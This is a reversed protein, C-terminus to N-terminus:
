SAAWARGDSNIDIFNTSKGNSLSTDSGVPLPLAYIWDGPNYAPTIKQTETNTGDTASRTSNDTYTYTVGAADTNGDWPTKELTWPKFVYLTTATDVIWDATSDSPDAKFPHVTLYDDGVSAVSFWSLPPLDKPVFPRIPVQPQVNGAHGLSTRM